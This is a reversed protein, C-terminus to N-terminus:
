SGTRVSDASDLVSRAFDATAARIRDEASPWLHAYTNLTISPQSHGLARQVTVVDCGAAILNSAYTHRLAHLTVDAPLKAATRIRRWQEGATSRNFKRGLLDVIVLDDGGNDALHASLTRLLEDPVYISREEGYKPPVIKAPKLTSGQVQQEVRITRRLFDVDRVRLGAAEGLRLGAFACLAVIPQFSDAADLAARLQKVDLLHM